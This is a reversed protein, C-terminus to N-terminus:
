LNRQIIMVYWIWVGNFVESNGEIISMRPRRMNLVKVVYIITGMFGCEKFKISFKNGWDDIIFFKWKEAFFWFKVAM